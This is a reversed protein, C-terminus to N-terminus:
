AGLSSQLDTLSLTCTSVLKRHQNATWLDVALDNSLSNHQVMSTKNLKTKLRIAVSLLRQSPSNNKLTATREAPWARSLVGNLGHASSGRAARQHQTDQPQSGLHRELAGGDLLHSERTKWVQGQRVVTSSDNLFYTSLSEKTDYFFITM